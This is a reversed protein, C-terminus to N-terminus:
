GSLSVPTPNQNPDLLGNFDGMFDERFVRKHEMLAAIGLKDMWRNLM